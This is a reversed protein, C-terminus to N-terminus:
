SIMIQIPPHNIMLWYVGVEGVINMFRDFDVPKQIFSNAGFLYSDRIDEEQASSSLVVIPISRTRENSKITHLIEM